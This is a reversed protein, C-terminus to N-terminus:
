EQGACLNELVLEPAYGSPWDTVTGLQDCLYIRTNRDFILKSTQKVKKEEGSNAYAFLVPLWEATEQPRFERANAEEALRAAETWNGRQLALNIKQYYFCWDRPPEDGFIQTPVSPPDASAQIWSTNSYPAMRAVTPSESLSLGLSGNYVHLCSTNNPMSVVLVQEYDRKVTVTGRVLREEQLRSALNLTIEPYPVQGSIKLPDGQHYLLNL